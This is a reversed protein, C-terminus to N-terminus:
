IPLNKPCVVCLSVFLLGLEIRSLAKKFDLGNHKLCVGWCSTLGIRKRIRNKCASAKVAEVIATQGHFDGGGAITGQPKM